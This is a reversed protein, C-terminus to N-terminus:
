RRRSHRPSSSLRGTLSLKMATRYAKEAEAPNETASYFLGINMLEEPM